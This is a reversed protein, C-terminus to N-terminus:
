RAGDSPSPEAGFDAKYIVDNGFIRKVPFFGTEENISEIDTIGHLSYDQTCHLVYVSGSRRRSEAILEKLHPRLESKSGSMYPVKRPWIFFLKSRINTVIIDNSAVREQLFRLSARNRNGPHEMSPFSGTSIGKYISATSILQIGWFFLLSLIVAALLSKKRRGYDLRSVVRFILSLVVLLILPYLPTTFRSGMPDLRILSTIVVLLLGYSTIHTLLLLQPKLSRRFSRSSLLLKASFVMSAVLCLLVAIRLWFWPSVLRDGFVVDPFFFVYKSFRLDFSLFDRFITAFFGVLQSLVPSGSPASQRAITGLYSFALLLNVVMPLLSASLFVALRKIEGSTREPNSLFLIALIGTGILSFGIFRTVFGLGALLGCAALYWTDRRGPSKLYSSLALLFLLSLMTYLTESWCHCFLYVVPAFFLLSAASLHATPKGQIRLGLLFVTAASVAFSFLSLLRAAGLGKDAGISPISAIALPYFMPSHPFARQFAKEVDGQKLHYATILYRESDFSVGMGGSTIVYIAVFALVGYLFAFVVGQNRAIKKLPKLSM